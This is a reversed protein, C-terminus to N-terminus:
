IWGDDRRGADIRLAQSSEPLDSGLEHIRLAGRLCLLQRLLYALHLPESVGKEEFFQRFEEPTEEPAELAGPQPAAERREGFFQEVPPLGVEGPTDRLFVLLGLAVLIAVLAPGYFAWRWGYTQALYGAWVLIGAAGVMHSSNWLGWMTGRESPAFWHSLIRACPPFGMGQFWGNLSWILGMALVTTTFGFWLNLLGSLLLGVAMFTRANSRDALYGNAFKSTGYLVDHTTLFLGLESKTFGLDKEVLPMAVSFNKRVFYYVAYGLFSLGLQRARWQKYTLRM